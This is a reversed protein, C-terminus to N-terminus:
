PLSAERQKRKERQIRLDDERVLMAIHKKLAGLGGYMWVRRAEARNTPSMVLALERKHREKQEELQKALQEASERSM